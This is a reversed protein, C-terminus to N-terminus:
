KKKQIPFIQKTLINLLNKFISSDNLKNKWKKNDSINSLYDLM